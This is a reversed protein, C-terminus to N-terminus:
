RAFPHCSQCSPADPFHRQQERHCELCAVRTIEPRGHAVHCRACRETAHTAHELPLTERAHCRQCSPLPPGPTQHCGGCDGHTGELPAVATAEATHCRGCREWWGARTPPAAQHPAHCDTCAEHAGTHARTAQEAHCHECAARSAEAHPTHCSACDGAHPSNAPWSSATHVEGAHCAVCAGLADTAAHHPAHCRTCDAHGAVTPHVEAHCHACDAAGGRPAGHATHCTTCTGVHSAHAGVTDAHCSACRSLAGADALFAHPQHCGACQHASPLAAAAFAAAPEAHCHTCATTAGARPPGHQAHCSTCDRHQATLALTQAHETQHCSGCATAADPRATHADHCSLCDRHEAPMAGRTSQAHVDEHCRACVAATPQPAHPEHCSTCAGHAEPASAPAPLAATTATEDEHCGHCREITAVWTHAEHCTECRGEHIIRTRVLAQEEPPVGGTGDALLPQAQWGLGAEPYDHCRVCDGAPHDLPAHPEHCGRCERHGPTAALAQDQVHGRHCSECDLPPASAEDRHPDHCRRCDMAGHVRDAGVSAVGALTPTRDTSALDERESEAGFSHCTTCAVEATPGHRPVDAHCGECGVAPADTHPATHCSTCSLSGAAHDHHGEAALASGAHSEHCTSCEAIADHAPPEGLGAAAVGLWGAADDDIGHCRTCALTGHGGSAHAGQPVIPDHCTACQTGDAAHVVARRRAESAGLVAAVALLAVALVVFPAARRASM